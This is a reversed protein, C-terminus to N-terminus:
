HQPSCFVAYSLRKLSQIESMHEEPRRYDLLQGTVPDKDLLPVFIVSSKQNTAVLNQAAASRAINARLQETMKASGDYDDPMVPGGVFGEETVETWRVAPTWLSKLWARDVGHTLFLEDNIQRLVAEYQPDFM